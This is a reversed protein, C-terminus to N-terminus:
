LLNLQKSIDQISKSYDAVTKGPLARESKETKVINASTLAWEYGQRGSKLIKKTGPRYILEMREMEALRRWVRSKEVKLHAAIDEFSAIGLVGLAKMIDRYMERLDEPNLSKYAEVSTTISKKNNM